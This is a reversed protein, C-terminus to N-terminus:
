EISHAITVIGFVKQHYVLSFRSLLIEGMCHLDERAEAVVVGDIPDDM